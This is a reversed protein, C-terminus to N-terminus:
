SLDAEPIITQNHLSKEMLLFDGKRWHAIGVTRYGLNEYLRISYPNLTFTDLRIENYGLSLALQEIRQMTRRGIGCHQFQPNVCLRHVVCFHADSRSWKGNAYQEDCEDNLVFACVATNDAFGLQLQGKEIDQRLTERDPYVDDWQDIGSATLGDKVACFLRFVDDLQDPQAIKFDIIYNRM